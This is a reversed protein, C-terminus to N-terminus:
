WGTAPKSDTAPAAPAKGPAPPAEFTHCGYCGFGKPNVPSWDQLNLLATMAPKVETGMFKVVDPKKDHLAMFGARDTPQPLKPLEPNPMKFKAEAAESGHCTVCTMTKYKKDFGMFLKKMEPLVTAKMYKKKQSVTMKEWDITARAPLKPAAGEAAPKGATAPAPAAAPEGAWGVNTLDLLGLALVLALTSTTKM